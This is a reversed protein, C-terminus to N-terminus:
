DPRRKRRRATTAPPAAPPCSQSGATTPTSGGSPAKTDTRVEGPTADSLTLWPSPRGEWAPAAPRPPTKSM